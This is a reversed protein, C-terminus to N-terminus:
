EAHKCTINYSNLICVLYLLIIIIVKTICFKKTLDHMSRAVITLNVLEHEVVIVELEAHANWNFNFKLIYWLIILRIEAAM